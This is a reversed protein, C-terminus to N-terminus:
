YLLCNTRFSLVGKGKSSGLLDKRQYKKLKEHDKNLLFRNFNM